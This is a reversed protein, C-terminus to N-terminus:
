SGFDKKLLLQENPNFIFYINRLSMSLFTYPIVLQLTWLPVQLVVSKDGFSYSEAVYKYSYYLLIACFLMMTFNQVRVFLIKGKEGWLKDAVEPRLHAAKEAILIAGIFGGWIMLYVASKQAWPIGRNLIERSLVDFIILITMLGMFLAALKKEIYSISEIIKKM